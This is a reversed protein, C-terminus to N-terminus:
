RLWHQFSHDTTGLSRKLQPLDYRKSVSCGKTEEKKLLCDSKGIYNNRYIRPNSSKM